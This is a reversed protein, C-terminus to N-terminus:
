PLAEWTFVPREGATLAIWLSSYEPTGRLIELTEVCGRGQVCVHGEAACDTTGTVAGDPACLQEIPGDCVSPPGDLECSAPDLLPRLDLGTIWVTPDFTVRLGPDDSAVDRDFLLTSPKRIVPVGLETDDSQQVAVRAVVPVDQGAYSVQAELVFSADGLDQAAPLPVPDTATLQSSIGLDYMWSRVRGTVGELTGVARPTADLTDVVVADLWELRAVDCLDGATNGPCLYLPGFALDARDVALPVDGETLVVPPTATGAVLLPVEARDQGTDLCGGVLLALAFLRPTGRTQAPRQGSSMDLDRRHPGNM